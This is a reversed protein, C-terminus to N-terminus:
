SSAVSALVDVFRHIEEFRNYLPTPAVRVVDPPRFDTIIGAGQLAEQLASADGVAQISLQAGRRQPERPTIIRYHDSGISDIRQQLYGTMRQSRERLAEM